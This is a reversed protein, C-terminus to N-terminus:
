PKSESPFGSSTLAVFLMVRRISRVWVDPSAYSRKVGSRCRQLAVRPSNAVSSLPVTSDRQLVGKINSGPVEQAYELVDGSREM